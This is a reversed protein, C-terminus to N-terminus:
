VHARGIEGDREDERLAVCQEFGAVRGLREVREPVVADIERQRHLRRVLRLKHEPMQESVFQKEDDARRM